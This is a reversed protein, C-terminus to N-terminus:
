GFLSCRCKVAKQCAHLRVSSFLAVRPSSAKKVSRHCALDPTLAAVMSVIACLIFMSENEPASATLLFEGALAPSGVSM